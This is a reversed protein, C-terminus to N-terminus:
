NMHATTNIQSSTPSIAKDISATFCVINHRKTENTESYNKNSLNLKQRNYKSVAIGHLKTFYLHM